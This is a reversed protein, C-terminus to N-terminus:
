QFNRQLVMNSSLLNASFNLCCSFLISCEHGQNLFPSVSFLTKRLKFSYFSFIYTYHDGGGGGVGGGGGGGGGCVCVCLSSVNKNHFSFESDWIGLIIHGGRGM